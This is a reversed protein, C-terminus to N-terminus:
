ERIGGDLERIGGDSKEVLKKSRDFWRLLLRGFSINFNYNLYLLKIIIKSNYPGEKEAIVLTM